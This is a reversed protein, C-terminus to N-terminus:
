ECIPWTAICIHPMTFPQRHYYTFLLGMQVKTLSFSNRDLGPIEKEACCSGLQWFQCLVRIISRNMIVRCLVLWLVQRQDSRRCNTVKVSACSWTDGDTSESESSALNRLLASACSASVEPSCRFGVPIGVRSM